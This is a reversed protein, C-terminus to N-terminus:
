EFGLGSMSIIFGAAAQNQQSAASRRRVGFIRRMKAWHSIAPCAYLRHQHPM